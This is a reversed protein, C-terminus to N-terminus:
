RGKKLRAIGSQFDPEDPWNKKGAEYLEKARATNGTIEEIMAEFIDADKCRGYDCFECLPLQRTLAITERAEQERGLIALLLSRRTRHIAEDTLAQELTQDVLDLAKQATAKAEEKRGVRWLTEALHMLTYADEPNEKARRSRIQLMKAHNCELDQLQLRYDQIREFGLRHKVKAMAMTSRLMEGRLLHHRGLAAIQEPDDPRARKWADLVQKAQEWQGFQWCIEVKRQYVEAYEYQALAADAAELASKWDGMRRLIQIQHEVLWPYFQEGESMASLAQRIYGLAKTLDGRAESICALGNYGDSDQPNLEVELAYFREANDYDGMFRLCTAKYFCLEPTQRIDLLKNYFALAEAAYKPLHNSYLDALAYEMAPFSQEGTLAEKYLAIAEEVRGSRGLLWAKYSLCDEDLADAELGKDTLRILEDMSTKGENGLLVALHYYLQSPFLLEENDNDEASKVLRRYQKLAEGIREEEEDLRAKIFDIEPSRPANNEELYSLISHVEEYVGNRLLIHMKLAHASLDGPAISLANHVAEFADRDRHFRFRILALLMWGLSSDPLLQVLQNLIEEARTYKGASFLIRGMLSLVEPNDPALSLAEEYYAMAEETKGTQELSHGLLQLFEPLRRLKKATEETGDEPLERLIEVVATLHPLTESFERRNLHLKGMLNHYQYPDAKEPDIKMALAYTDELRKNQSYCWALEIANETDDPNEKVIRELEVIIEENWETLYSGLHEQQVPDGGAAHLLDYILEKAETYQKQQALSQALLRKANKHEPMRALISRTLAEAEAANGEKLCIEAWVAPLLDDEPYREALSRFAKLAPEKDGFLLNQRLRMAQGYPHQEPLAEMQSLIPEIEELPTQSAQYYLRRYADCAAGDQGPVFLDYSLSDTFRIGSIIVHDVFSRPCLEYLEEVRSQLSLLQDMLIWVQQPLYYHELLYELLKQEAEARTDLGLCVPDRLLDSWNEPKIRECYNQYLEDVREMWRGTPTLDATVPADEMAALRLAEEYASRLAKFEEPKDEPNTQQLKTRYAATIAKKDKTPAIGLITWDM